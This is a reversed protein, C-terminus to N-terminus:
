DALYIKRQMLKEIPLFPTPVQFSLRDFCVEHINNYRGTAATVGWYVQTNGGFVDNILDRKVRIVETGDIEVLLVQAGPDWIVSFLHRSCDEINPITNPGALNSFHGIRGNAMIALHDEVPDLLHENLWTDVEIGISPVLGAFGIGEGRFGVQDTYPTMVFVMGDAGLDDKCGLMLNLDVSFTSALSIPKKYWIAGSAYDQEETLRFCEEETRYTDGVITFDEIFTIQANVNACFLSSVILCLCNFKSLM